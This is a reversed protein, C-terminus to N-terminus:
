RHWNRRPSLIIRKMVLRAIFPYWTPNRSCSPWHIPMSSASHRTSATPCTRILFVVRFGLAKARLAAATGIRGLGIVGFTLTSTRRLKDKAVLKWGPRKAEANVPFAPAHAGAILRHCSRSSGGHWIPCMAVPIERAAAATIDVSDFGVGNRILARCRKLRDLTRETILTNQWVILADAGTNGAHFGSRYRDPLVEHARGQRAGQSRSGRWM